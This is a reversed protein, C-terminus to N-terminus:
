NTPRLINKVCCTTWVVLFTPFRQIIRNPNYFSSFHFVEFSMTYKIHGSTGNQVPCDRRGWAYSRSAWNDRKSCSFGTKQYGTENDGLVAEPEGLQETKFLVIGNGGLVDEPRGITGNQVPCDWKQYGTGNDKLVAELRGITGNQSLSCGM